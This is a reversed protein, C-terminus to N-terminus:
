REINHHIVVSYCIKKYGVFIYTRLILMKDYENKTKNM